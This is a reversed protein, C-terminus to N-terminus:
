RPSRRAMITCWRIAAAADSNAVGQAFISFGLWSQFEFGHRETPDLTLRVDLGDAIAALGDLRTALVGGVDFARLREIATDFPGAAEVLPLYEPALEAVMGADKADLAARVLATREADLPLPGAALTEVLDPLTFDISVGSM